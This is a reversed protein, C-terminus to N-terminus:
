RVDELNLSDLESIPGNERRKKDEYPGAIKRYLELKACELVGILSNLTFYQLATREIMSHILKTIVYNLDGVDGYEILEGVLKKIADDYKDRKRQHIYPM